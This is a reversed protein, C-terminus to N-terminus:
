LEIESEPIVTLESLANAAIPERPDEPPVLVANGRPKEILYNLAGAPKTGKKLEKGPAFLEKGILKEMKAPSLLERPEYLDPFEKEGDDIESNIAEVIAEEGFKWKRDSRGEVFKWGGVDRGANVETRAHAELDSFWSTVMKKVRLAAAVQDNTLTNVPRIKTAIEPDDLNVLEGTMAKGVAQNRTKCTRRILCFKCWECAAFPADPSETLLAGPRVIKEAWILLDSISIVTSDIHQLRPQYITLVFENIEYLWGYMLYFGLAYLKLQPNDKSWVQWGEGYKLDIIHARGPYAKAADMTGFGNKVFEVYRVRTENYDDGPIGNVYDIFGQLHEAMEKDITFEFGGVQGQKGILAEVPIHKARAEEAVSHAFTGEASWETDENPLGKTARV